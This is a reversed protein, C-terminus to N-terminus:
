TTENHRRSIITLFRHNVQCVVRGYLGAFFTVEVYGNKKYDTTNTIIGKELYEDIVLDGVNIM